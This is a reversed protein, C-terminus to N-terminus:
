MSSGNRLRRIPIIKWSSRSKGCRETAALILNPSLPQCRSGARSRRASTAASQPTSCRRPRMGSVSEPPSRWANAQGPCERGAGTEQEAIFRDGCQIQRISVCQEFLESLNLLSQGNRHEVDSVARGLGEGDTRAQKEQFGSSDDSGACREVDQRHTSVRRGAGICPLTETVDEGGPDRIVVLRVKGAPELEFAAGGQGGWREVVRHARAYQDRYPGVIDQEGALREGAQAGAVLDGTLDFSENVVPALGFDEDVCALEGPDDANDLFGQFLEGDGGSDSNLKIMLARLQWMRPRSIRGERSSVLILREGRKVVM